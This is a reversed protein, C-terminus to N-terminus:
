PRWDSRSHDDPQRENRIYRGVRDVNHVRRDLIKTDAPRCRDPDDEGWQNRELTKPKGADAGHDPDAHDTPQALDVEDLSLVSSVLDFWVLNACAQLPVPLCAARPM